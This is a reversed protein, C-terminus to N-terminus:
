CWKRGEKRLGVTKYNIDTDGVKWCFCAKINLTDFRIRRNKKHAAGTPGTRLSERGKQHFACTSHGQQHGSDGWNTRAILPLQEMHFSHPGSFQADPSVEPQFCFVWGKRHPWDLMHLCIQQLVFHDLSKFCTKKERGGKWFHFSLPYRPCLRLLMQQRESPDQDIRIWLPVSM